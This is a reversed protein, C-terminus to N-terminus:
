TYTDSCNKRLPNSPSSIKSASRNKRSRMWMTVLRRLTRARQVVRCMRYKGPLRAVFSVSEMSEVKNAGPSVNLLSSKDMVVKGLLVVAVSFAVVVIEVLAVAVEVMLVTLIMGAVDLTVSSHSLPVFKEHVLSVLVLVGALVVALPVLVLVGALSVLGVALSVLM